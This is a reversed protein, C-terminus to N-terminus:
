HAKRGAIDLWPEQTIRQEEYQKINGLYRETLAIDDLGALLREKIGHDIDFPYQDKGVSLYPEDESLVVQIAFGKSAECAKALKVVVEKPQPVLLLGNKSANTAFIDAFSPAIIAKFGYDCLAWVAHERSSGCGFNNGSLLVEAGQYREQNLIFDKNATLQEATTTSDKAPTEYRSDNFLFLGYGTKTVSTLFQKPIIMDTDINDQLYPVAVGTFDRFPEM